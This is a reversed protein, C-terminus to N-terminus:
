LGGVGQDGVLLNIQDCKLYFDKPLINNSKNRISKIYVM